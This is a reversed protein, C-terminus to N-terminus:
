GTKKFFPIGKEGEYTKRRSITGKKKRSRQSSHAERAKKKRRESEARVKAKEDKNPIPRKEETTRRRPIALGQSARQL